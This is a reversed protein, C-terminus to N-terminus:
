SALELHKEKIHAIIEGAPRTRATIKSKAAFNLSYLVSEPHQAGINKLLLKLLKVFNSEESPQYLQAIM